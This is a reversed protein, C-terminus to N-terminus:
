RIYKGRLIPPLAQYRAALEPQSLIYRAVMQLIEEGWIDYKAKGFGKIKMLEKKTTPLTLAILKLSDTKAVTYLEVEAENAITRRRAFLAILLAHNPYQTLDTAHEAQKEASASIRITPLRFNKRAQHFQQICPKKAMQGMLFVQRQLDIFLENIAQEFDTRSEANDTTCPSQKIQEILKTLLPGFYAAADRLRSELTPGETAEARAQAEHQVRQCIELQFRQGWVYYQEIDTKIQELFPRTEESYAAEKTTLERMHNIRHLSDSFDYIRCLIAQLYQTQSGSLMDGIAAIDPQNQTFRLVEQANTLASEPIKSLLIIGELSRCRSLAVYVQGSAFADAADIVVDDFTLGQSKHITIAWALRLPVQKFTGVVEVNVTEATKGPEYRLNEWTEEGVEITEDECTVQIGKPSLQTIIGLKGNYYRKEPSSDNKVFMVRAGEKLTLSKEIPYMSEPFNGEVKAHFTYARTSLNALESSNISDVKANHTSLIIHFDEKSPQYDPQYRSNLLNRSAASLCNNRVQNLVDIFQQNQQRFVHDLEIYIPAVEKLVRAQFFYPGEYYPRLLQWEDYRAVPSLQFLDGIFLLQVGGFPENRRRRFHRLVADIADLLDARVMSIEDIVLLELNRLVQIKQKRMQMESFLMVRAEETPLFLQPPLQFFSHITTGGANIAAVGTPAVIAMQKEASLALNRLFTTKGTGAKGTLFICRNTHRAYESALQYADM